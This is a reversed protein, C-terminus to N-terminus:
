EDDDGFCIDAFDGTHCQDGCDDCGFTTQSAALDINIHIPDGENASMDGITTTMEGGCDCDIALTYTRM